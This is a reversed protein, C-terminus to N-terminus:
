YSLRLVVDSNGIRIVDESALTLRAARRGNVYIGNTSGLDTMVLCPGARQIALHEKSVAPDSLVVSNGAVSGITTRKETLQVRKGAMPGSQFELWAAGALLCRPAVLHPRRCRGCKCGPLRRRLFWWGLLVVAGVVAGIGAILPTM